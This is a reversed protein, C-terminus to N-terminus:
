SASSLVLINLQKLLSLKHEPIKKAKNKPELLWALEAHTAFNQTWPVWSKTSHLENITHFMVAKLLVTCGGCDLAFSNKADRTASGIYSQVSKPSDGATDQYCTTDSVLYVRGANTSTALTLTKPKPMRGNPHQQSFSVVQTGGQLTQNCFM